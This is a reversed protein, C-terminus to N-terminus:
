KGYFVTILVVLFPVILMSAVDLGHRSLITILADNGPAFLGINRYHVWIEYSELVVGLGLPGLLGWASAIPRRLLANLFVHALCGVAVLV